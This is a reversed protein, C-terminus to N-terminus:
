SIGKSRINSISGLAMTLPMGAKLLNTLQQSFTALEQLKPRRQRNMYERLRQPLLNEIGSLNVSGTRPKAAVARGTDLSVPFLGMKEIQVLAAGRDPVDLAGEVLEGSRRRAKYSFQAM